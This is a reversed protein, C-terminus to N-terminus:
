PPGSSRDIRHTGHCDTCVPDTKLSLHRDLFCAVVKQAAVDHKDHCTRCSADVEGRRYTIGPKTAGVDEDNAHKASLGHCKTCAVQHALHTKVLEEQVFTM